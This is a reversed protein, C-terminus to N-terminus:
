TAPGLCPIQQAEAPLDVITLIRSAPCEWRHALTLTFPSYNKSSATEYKSTIQKLESNGHFFRIEDTISRQAMMDGLTVLGTAGITDRVDGYEGGFGRYQDFFGSAHPVGNEELLKETKMENSEYYFLGWVFGTVLGGAAAVIALLFLAGWFFDIADQGVKAWLETLKKWISVTSGQQPSGPTLTQTM